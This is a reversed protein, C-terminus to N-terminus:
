AASAIHKTDASAIHKTDASATASVVILLVAWVVGCAISYATYTRTKLKM